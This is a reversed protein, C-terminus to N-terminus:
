QFALNLEPEGAGLVVWPEAMIVRLPIGQATQLQLGGAVPEAAAPSMVRRLLDWTQLLQPAESDVLSKHIWVQLPHAPLKGDPLMPAQKPGKPGVCIELYRDTTFLDVQTDPQRARNAALARRLEQFRDNLRVLKATAAADFTAGIRERANADAIRQLLQRDRNIRNWAVRNVLRGRIGPVTPQVTRWVTRTRAQVAVPGTAFGQELDFLVPKRAVFHSAVVSHVIAPGQRGTSHSLTTGRLSLYVSAERPSEAFDASLIGNTRAKGYVPTGLVNLRV